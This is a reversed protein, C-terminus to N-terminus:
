KVEKTATLDLSRAPQYYTTMTVTVKLNKDSGSIELTNLDFPRISREFDKLVDSAGKYNTTGDFAFTVPKVQPEPQAADSNTTPDDTVTLSNVTVTRGLLIKELSSALAPADYTSPLADLVIKANNGDLNADGNKDGNLINPAQDAFVKYQAFLTKASDYNAKLQNAVLQTEHLARRQYLGKAILTKIAFLCFIVVAVTLAIVLLMNSQSKDIQLHKVSTKPKTTAM